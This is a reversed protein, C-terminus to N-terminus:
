PIKEASKRFLYESDVAPEDNRHAQMLRIRRPMLEKLNDGYMLPTEGAGSQTMFAVGSDSLEMLECSNAIELDIAHRLTKLFFKKKASELISGHVCYIWAAVNRQTIMWCRLGRLRIWQDYFVSAANPDTAVSQLTIIANQLPPLVHKDIREMDRGAKEPTTLQFLVDRALDVNNPNHPTTCMFDEYYAREEGPIAEINPVLPRTWLRYWNFGLSAYLPTIVPFAMVTEETLTWAELLVSKKAGAWKRGLRDLTKEVSESSQYQFVRMVEHNADFPVAEPPHTGGTHALHRVGNRFLLKLRRHTLRPYPIGLLPLFMGYPGATFYFHPIGGRSQIQKMFPKEESDFRNQYVTGANIPSDPYRPHRYPMNWGKMTLSATEVDLQRGLGQRIVDHEGYFSEMRIIVRFHPNIESAAELLTRFFRLANEGAARAIEEQNKWERILYAGGNRGVYLSQTHEFGAGSDNTWITLYELDPVEQLLNQIMERYHDLVAPHATTMNYRPKFSRFPHDVRAGRLMPYRHFFSEPVSRPEFCLLGPRIGYRAALRANAKLRGLNRSLYYAPYVGRNLRSSVFQDLAPCYTYFMPYAEGPPGTELGMPFDLANVEVHTFGMRALKLVYTEPDLNKQIRGEQTLFFDYASRQWSFAPIFIRGKQYTSLSDHKRTEVWTCLFGFLYEPDSAILSGNGRADLQFFVAAKDSDAANRSGDRPVSGIDIRFGGTPNRKIEETGIHRNLATCLWQAASRTVPYDPNYHITQICQLADILKM